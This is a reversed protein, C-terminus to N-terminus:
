ERQQCRCIGSRWDAAAPAERGLERVFVALYHTLRAAPDELTGGFERSKDRYIRRVPLERVRLGARACQVWFQLPFAYGPEDLRLRRMAAVRHAKFGCFSDTLTLGLIQDVLKTITQNIERRDAPPDDDGAFTRLYRSGSLVDADGRAAAAMFEPIQAPEHQEDCDITIVWDYGHQAAFAFADILSQGYGRNEPHAIVHLGRERALLAPTADTSGDNVVLIEAASRAFGPGGWTAAAPVAASRRAHRRVAALVGPLYRAENYVPIAILFRM